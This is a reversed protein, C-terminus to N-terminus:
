SDRQTAALSRQVDWAHHHADHAVAGVVTRADLRGRRSHELVVDAAVAARAVTAWADAAHGLTWLASPLPVADYRKVAAVDDPAASVYEREWGALAAALGAGWGLLNDAVHQVYGAVSWGLDPHRETGEAGEVLATFRGPAERVVTIAEEPTLDWRYGCDRCPDGFAAPGWAPRPATSEASM